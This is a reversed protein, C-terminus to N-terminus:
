SGQANTKVEDMETEEKSENKKVQEEKREVCGSRGKVHTCASGQM